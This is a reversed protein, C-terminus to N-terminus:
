HTRNLTCPVKASNKSNSFTVDPRQDAQWKFFGNYIECSSNSLRIEEMQQLTSKSVSNLVKHKNRNDM